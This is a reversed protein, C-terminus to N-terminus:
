LEIIRRICDIVNSKYLGFLERLAEVLYKDLEDLILGSIRSNDFHHLIKALALNNFASCKLSLPLDCQKIDDMLQKYISVVENLQIHDEGCLSLSKALYKYTQNRQFLPIPKSQVNIVPNIDNRGTYWNNGSRRGYFIACKAPKIDLGSSLMVPEAATIMQNIISIDFPCMVIDDAFAQVPLPNLKLENEINLCIMATTVMPKCIRDIVLIFILASLADGTKTGRIIVFRVTLEFGCIVQFTSFKYHDEILCNYMTPINFHELTRTNRTISQTSLIM